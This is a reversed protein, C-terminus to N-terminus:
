AMKEIPPMSFFSQTHTALEHLARDGQLMVNMFPKCLATIWMSMYYLLMRAFCLLKRVLACAASYSCVMGCCVEGYWGTSYIRQVADEHYFWGLTGLFMHLLALQSKRLWHAKGNRVVLWVVMRSIFEAVIRSGLLVLALMLAWEPEKFFLATLGVSAAAGVLAAKAAAPGNMIVQLQEELEDDEDELVESVRPDIYPALLALVDERVVKGCYIALQVRAASKFATSAVSTAVAAYTSPLGNRGVECNFYPCICLQLDIARHWGVKGCCIALQLRAATKGCYIALQVRAASKFATSAVSTALVAYLDCFSVWIEHWPIAYYLAAISSKTAGQAADKEALARLQERHKAMFARAEDVDLRGDALMAKRDRLMAEQERHKAMFARAEDVDLRGDALMAKRDRLMAEQERVRAGTDEREKLTRRASRAAHLTAARVRRYHAVLHHWHMVVKKFGVIQFLIIHLALSKFTMGFFLISLGFLAKLSFFVPAVVPVVANVAGEVHELFLKTIEHHEPYELDIDGTLTVETVKSPSGGDPTGPSSPPSLTARAAVDEVGTGAPLRRQRVTTYEM